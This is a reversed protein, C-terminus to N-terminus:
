DLHKVRFPLSQVQARAQGVQRDSESLEAGVMPLCTSSSDRHSEKTKMIQMSLVKPTTDVDGRDDGQVLVYNCGM